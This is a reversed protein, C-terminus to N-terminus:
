KVFSLYKSTRVCTELGASRIRVQQRFIRHEPRMPFCWCWVFIHSAPRIMVSPVIGIDDMSVFRDVLTANRM